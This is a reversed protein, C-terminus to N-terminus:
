VPNLNRIESANIAGKPRDGIPNWSHEQGV